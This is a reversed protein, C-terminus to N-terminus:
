IVDLPGVFREAYLMGVVMAADIVLRASGIRRVLGENRTLHFLGILLCANMAVCAGVHIFFQVVWETNSAHFSAHTDDLLKSFAAAMTLLAVAVAFWWAACAVRVCAWESPVRNIALGSVLPLEPPRGANGGLRAITRVGAVILALWVFPAAIRMPTPWKPVYRSLESAIRAFGIFGVVGGVAFIMVMLGLYAEVLSLWAHVRSHDARVHALDEFGDLM